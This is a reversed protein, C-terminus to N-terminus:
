RVVGPRPRECVYDRSTNCPIDNGDGLSPGWEVCPGDGSPEGSRFFAYSLAVGNEWQGSTRTRGTARLGVYSRSTSSFGILNAYVTDREGVTELYALHGRAAACGAAASDRSGVVSTSRWYCHQTAPDVFTVSGLGVCEVSTCTANCGDGGTTNGDDCVEGFAVDVFGDGCRVCTAGPDIRGDCDDDIGNCVEPAGPYIAGTGDNCDGGGLPCVAPRGVIGFARDCFRDGDDDCGEDVRTDCDDDLDNCVEPDSTPPEPACLGLSGAVDCRLCLGTCASTCCVGDVCALGRACRATDTCPEGVGLDPICTGAECHAGVRCYRDDDTGEVDCRTACREGVAGRGECSYLGCSLGAGDVCAGVECSQAPVEVYGGAGDERCTAAACNTPAEDVAEDCDQEAGDCVDTVGPNRGPEDDDCDPGLCGIGQGYADADMDVCCPGGVPLCVTEGTAVVGTCTFRRPCSPVDPVCTPLCAREGTVLEACRALPGCDADLECADCILRFRGADRMGGSDPRPFTGADREPRPGGDPVAVRADFPGADAPVNSGAACGAVLAAGVALVVGMRGTQM